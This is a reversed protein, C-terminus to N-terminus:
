LALLRQALNYPGSALTSLVKVAEIHKCDERNAWARFIFDPCACIYEFAQTQGNALGYGPKGLRDIFQLYVLRSRVPYEKDSDTQSSVYFTQCETSPQRRTTRVSMGSISIEQSFNEL